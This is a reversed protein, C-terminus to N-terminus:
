REREIVSKKLSEQKLQNFVSEPLVIKYVDANNIITWRGDKCIIDDGIYLNQYLNRFEGKVDIGMTIKLVYDDSNKYNDLLKLFGIKKCSDLKEYNLSVACAKELILGYVYWFHSLASKLGIWSARHMMPEGRHDGLDCLDDTPLYYDDEWSRLYFVPNHQQLLLEGFHIKLDDQFGSTLVCESTYYFLDWLPKVYLNHNSIGEWDNVESVWHRWGEKENETVEGLISRVEDATIYVEDANFGYIREMSLGYYDVCDVGKYIM